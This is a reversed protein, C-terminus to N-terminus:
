YESRHSFVRLRGEGATFDATGVTAAVRSKYAMTTGIQAGAGVITAGDTLSAVATSAIFGDADIVTTGDARYTGVILTASGGSTFATDVYLEVREIVEGVPIDVSRNLLTATGFANLATGTIKYETIRNNGTRDRFEGGVQTNVEEPGFYVTIGDANTWSAM